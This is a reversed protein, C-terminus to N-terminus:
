TSIHKAKRRLWMAHGARKGCWVEIKQCQPWSGSAQLMATLWQVCCNLRCPLCLMSPLLDAQSPSGQRLWGAQRKSLVAAPLPRTGMAQLLVQQRSSAHMATTCAEVTCVSSSSRSQPGEARMLKCLYAQSAVLHMSPTSHGVLSGGKHQAKFRQQWHQACAPLGDASANLVAAAACAVTTSQKSCHM